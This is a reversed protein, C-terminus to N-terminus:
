GGRRVDAAPAVPPATRELEAEVREAIRAASLGHRELLFRESGVSRDGTDDIGLRVLRCDLGRGAIVEAVLSGLGGTTRHGEVTVALPVRELLAALDTGPAPSVSAVAAVGAGVGSGLLLESVRVAERAIPGLALIAVDDGETLVDLRGLEFAGSSGEVEAADDKGLRYYVPGM